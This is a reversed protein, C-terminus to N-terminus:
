EIVMGEETTEIPLSANENHELREEKFIGFETSVMFLPAKAQHLLMEDIVKPLEIDEM